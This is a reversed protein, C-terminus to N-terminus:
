APEVGEARVMNEVIQTLGFDTSILEAKWCGARGGERSGGADTVVEGYINMTTRIDAHRM